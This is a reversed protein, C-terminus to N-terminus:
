VRDTGKQFGTDAPFNISGQMWITGMFRRGPAPEGYLDKDNICLEFHLGNCGLTMVWVKELTLPNQTCRCRLIEALVNYLDCEAGTPMFYADVLTLIDHDPLKQLLVSYTDMERTTLVRMAEDDGDRAKSMLKMQGLTRQRCEQREEETKQLPLLVKGEISLATLSVSTGPAPLDATVSYRIYDMINLLRFIVTTGVHLDDCIGEYATFDIKPEVTVEEYSSIHDSRIFPTLTEPTFQESKEDYQGLVSIGYGDGFDMACVCLQANNLDEVTIADRYSSRHLVEEILKYQDVYTM